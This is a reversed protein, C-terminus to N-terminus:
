ARDMPSPPAWSRDPPCLDEQTRSVMENKAQMANGVHENYLLKNLGYM